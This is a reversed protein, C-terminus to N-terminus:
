ERRLFTAIGNQCDETMRAIVNTDVGAQLAQDFSMGDMRYILGKALAVASRSVKEFARVYSEVEADFTSGNFVQNVLGMERADDARIEAGLAILEFARKESVNRRLIAMLM